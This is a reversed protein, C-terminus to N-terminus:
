KEMSELMERLQQRAGPRNALWQGLGKCYDQSLGNDWGTPPPEAVQQASAPRCAMGSAFADNADASLMDAAYVDRLKAILAEREGVLKTADGIHDAPPPDPRTFLKEADCLPPCVDHRTYMEWGEHVIGTAVLYVPEVGQAEEAAIAERLLGVFGHEDGEADLVIAANHLRRQLPNMDEFKM